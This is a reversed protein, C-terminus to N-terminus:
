DQDDRLTLRPTITINDGSEQMVIPGTEEYWELAGGSTRTVFYGRITEATGTSTRTFTQAAYVGVTPTGPTTTWSGGTLTKSSYGAFTAETFDAAVVGDPYDPDATIDNTYLKLTYGVALILDLKAEEGVNPVIVTM